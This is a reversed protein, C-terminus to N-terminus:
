KPYILSAYQGAKFYICDENILFAIKALREGLLTIKEKGNFSVEYLRCQDYVIVQQGNKWAGFSPVPFYTFTGFNQVLFEHLNDEVKPLKNIPLLFVAPRGLDVFTFNDNGLGAWKSM